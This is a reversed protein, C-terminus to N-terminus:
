MESIFPKREFYIYTLVLILMFDELAYPTLVILVTPKIVICGYQWYTVFDCV